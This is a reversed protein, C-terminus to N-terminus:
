VSNNKMPKNHLVPECKEETKIKQSESHLNSFHRGSDQNEQKFKKKVVELNNPFSEFKRNNNNNKNKM